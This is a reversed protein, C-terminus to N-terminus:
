DKKGIVRVTIYFGLLSLLLLYATLYKDRPFSGVPRGKLTTFGECLAGTQPNKQSQFACADLRSIDGDAMHHTEVGADFQGNTKLTVESCQPLGNGFVSVLPIPNLGELDKLIGPVVGVEGGTGKTSRTPVNDVFMYRDVETDGAMCTTGTPMFFRNGLTQGTRSAASNGFFMQTYDNMVDINAHLKRAEYGGGAESPTKLAAWYSYHADPIPKVAAAVISSVGAVELSSKTM